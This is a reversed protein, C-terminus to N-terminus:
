KVILKLAKVLGKELSTEYNDNAENSQSDIMAIGIYIMWCWKNGISALPHPVCFVYLRHTERLWRQLVSQSPAYFIDPYREFMSGLHETPKNRLKGDLYYKANATLRQPLNKERALRATAETVYQERYEM